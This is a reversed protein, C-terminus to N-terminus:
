AKEGREEIKIGMRAACYRANNALFQKDKDMGRGVIDVHLDEMITIVWKYHGQRVHRFTLTGTM